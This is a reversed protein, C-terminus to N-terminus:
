INNLYIIDVLLSVTLDSFEVVWFMSAMSKASLYIKASLYM